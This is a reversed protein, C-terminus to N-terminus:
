LRKYLSEVSLQGMKILLENKDRSRERIMDFFPLGEYVKNSLEVITKKDSVKYEISYIILNNSEISSLDTGSISVKGLLSIETDLSDLTLTGGYIPQYFEKLLELNAEMLTTDDINGITATIKKFEPRKIVETGGTLGTDAIVQIPSDSVTNYTVSVIMTGAFSALDPDLTSIEIYIYSNGPTTSLQTITLEKNVDKNLASEWIEQLVPNDSYIDYEQRLYIARASAGPYSVLKDALTSSPVVLIYYTQTGDSNESYYVGTKTVAAPNDQHTARTGPLTLIETVEKMEFDGALIIRSRSRSYDTIPEFSLVKHNAALSTGETPIVYTKLLAGSDIAAVNLKGYRDTFYTYKGFLKVAWELVNTVTEYVWNVPSATTTPISLTAYPIGADLLVEKLVDDYTKIEGSGSESPPRYIYYSSTYFQNLFYTLDRCEYTLEQTDGSLTRSRSIVYGCFMPLSINNEDLIYGYIKEGLSLSPTVDFKSVEKITMSSGELSLKIDDIYLTPSNPFIGSEGVLGGGASVFNNYNEGTMYVSDFPLQTNGYQTVTSNLGQSSSGNNTTISKGASTSASSPSADPDTTQATVEPDSFDPGAVYSTVWVKLYLPVSRTDSVCGSTLNKVANTFALGTDGASVGSMTINAPDVIPINIDDGNATVTSVEAEVATKNGFLGKSYGDFDESQSQAYVQNVTTLDILNEGTIDMENNGSADSIRIIGIKYAAPNYLAALQNLTYKWDIEINHESITFNMSTSALMQTGADNYYVSLSRRFRFGGQYNVVMCATRYVNATTGGTTWYGYETYEPTIALFGLTNPVDERNGAFSEKTTYIYRWRLPILVPTAIVFGSNEDVIKYEDM